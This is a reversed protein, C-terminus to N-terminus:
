DYFPLTFLHTSNYGATRRQIKAERTLIPCCKKADADFGSFRILNAPMASRFM